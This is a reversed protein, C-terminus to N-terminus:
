RGASLFRTAPHLRDRAEAILRRALPWARLPPAAVLRVDGYNPVVSEVMLRGGARVQLPASLSGAHLVVQEGGDVGVILTEPLASEPIWPRRITLTGVGPPVQLQVKRGYVDLRADGGDVWLRYNSQALTALDLWQVRGLSDIFAALEDLLGCGDALDAHHGVLIVPQRLFAAIVMSAESQMGLGYRPIVPLGGGIFEAPRLGVADPWEIGPNSAMLAARSLCAGQYGFRLLAGGMADTCSAHPAAMVRAVPLGTTAELKEIRRLSQAVLAERALVTDVRALEHKVHDNGHVLLSLHKPNDKFLRVTPPHSYWADLPVTAISVHFGTGSAAHRLLERYDIYGFSPWHLNPDDFMFCARVISEAPTVGTIEQAFHLLPLLGIFCGSRLQQFPWSESSDAVLAARCVDVTRRAAVHRFWVPDEDATALVELRDFGTTDPAIPGLTCASPLKRRRLPASLAVSDAFQASRQRHDDGNDVTCLVFTRSCCASLEKVTECHAVLQVVM